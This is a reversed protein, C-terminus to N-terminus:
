PLAPPKKVKLGLHTEFHDFDRDRHLLEFGSEICFTAIVCDITKRVTIGRRQLLRFNQAAAVAIAATSEEFVPFIQMQERTEEFEWDSHVGRLIECLILTTLGIPQQNLSKSLWNSQPTSRGNFADIWVSSDVIIM